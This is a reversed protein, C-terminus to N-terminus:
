ESGFYMLASQLQTDNEPDRIYDLLAESLLAATPGDIHGTVDLDNAAQVAEVAEQTDLDFYGDTRVDYGMITLIGQANATHISVTDYVLTDGARLFINFLSFNEDLDVLIDPQVGDMDGEGKHVWNGEPTLWKGFTLNITSGNDLTFSGQMTGKGLSPQGIITYGGKEQMAAAFVESASASYENIVVVIDYAKTATGTANYETTQWTGDIFTETTFMPLEGAPLFTNIMTRVAGLYGGTNYRLDIILGEIHDDSEMANIAATMLSPTQSGFTNIKLYGIPKGDVDLVEHEVSPNPITERTMAFFLTEPVGPRDVGLEVATGEEGILLMLTQLYTLDEVNDGDIHTIRDGARMGAREAPSDSWVMRVIVDENINEVTIGVGVFAEGLSQQWRELDEPTMYSTYPDGLADFLGFIAHKYFEHEEVERYHWRLFLDLVDEFIIDNYHTGHPVWRYYLTMDGQLRDTPHFRHQFDPDTYVGELSYGEKDLDPIPVPQNYARTIPEVTDDSNTEYTVTYQKVSWTPEVIVDAQVDSPSSDWGDFRHGQREPPDIDMNADTGEYVFQVEHIGGDANKFIVRHLQSRINLTQTGGDAYRVVLYGEDNEEISVANLAETDLVETRNDSYLVEWQNDENVYISTIHAVGSEACAALAFVVLAFVWTIIVKKM